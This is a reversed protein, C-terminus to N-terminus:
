FLRFCWLKEIQRFIIMKEHSQFKKWKGPIDFDVKGAQIQREIIEQVSGLALMAAEHAKWWDQNGLFDFNSVWFEFKPVRIEFNGAAKAQDSEM